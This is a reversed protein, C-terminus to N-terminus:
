DGIKTLRVQDKRSPGTISVTYSGRAIGSLDLQLINSNNDLLKVSIERGAADFLRVEDSSGLPDKVWIRAQNSAPNPYLVLANNQTDINGKVVIPTGMVIWLDPDVILSDPTFDLQVAYTQGSFEHKVRITTDRTANKFKIGVDMPFFSVSSHSTSQGLKFNVVNGMQSYNVHYTPFGQKYVWQDFFVDLDKGSSQEMVRKFEETTAFGYKFAPDNLYNRVGQFFVDDGLTWRLMHLVMAGKAYSLRSDFIRDVSNVDDVYVSGGPKSTVGKIQNRRWIYWYLEPSDVNYVLGTLYTAFGENLWIDEWNACTTHDGFWQHGLEHAQLEYSFDHMFSMTQHEMGGGWAFQAMGYKEKMFPYATFLSDFIFLHRNTHSINYFQDPLVEPYVMHHVFLDGHTLAITNKIDTYNTVAIAVLYTAIPYRHKWHYIKSNALQEIPDLLGNSAAQWDGNPIEVNIDISDIKDSLNQRCPWWELAGYPESLTWLVPTGEHTATMFSGFGSNDIPPQGSYTFSVVYDQGTLFPASLRLLNGVHEVTTTNGNLIVKSISLDKHLDFFVQESNTKVTFHHTVTGSIFRVTPDVKWYAEVFHVDVGDSQQNASKLFNRGARKKELSIIEEQKEPSYTVQALSSICGLLLSLAIVFRFM